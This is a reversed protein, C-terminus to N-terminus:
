GDPCQGKADTLRRELLQERAFHRGIWDLVDAPAELFFGPAPPEFAPIAAMIEAPCRTMVVTRQEIVPDPKIAPRDAPSAACATLM